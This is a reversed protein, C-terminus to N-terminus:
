LQYWKKSKYSQMLNHATSAYQKAENAMQETRDELENLKQGREIMAMKAKSVESTAGVGKAQLPVMNAGPIHKALGASAKGASEGFLEERDCPKPGGGFLGRLFSQKPAEPMPLNETFVHGTMEPLQRMFDASVSIKQLETPNSFYLGHGYNSFTMTRGVRPSKMSTFYMDLMPRLSPLSYAKIFGDSTYCVLCPTFKVGGFNIVSATVVSSSENITQCYMQRQSPLAYVAAAKETCFVVVQQDGMPPSNSEGGDEQQQGVSTAAGSGSHPRMPVMINEPTEGGRVTLTNASTDLFCATLLPGRIRFLTGSPSVVVPEEARPDGRDPLNIAVFIVSGLTTGVVLCANLHFDNKTTFADVFHVACVGEATVVLDLSNVSSSKSFSAAGSDEASSGAKQLRRCDPSKVRSIPASLPVNISDKTTLPVSLQPQVSNHHHHNSSTNNDQGGGGKESSSNGGPAPTLGPTQVQSYNSLDVRVIDDCPDSNLPRPSKPMRQFPDLSGYLDATGMNLLCVNQVIDVIVLGSNNGYAMLGYNSNLQLCNVPSPPENNVWPTLCVLEAHFGPTKRQSGVRLKFPNSYEYQVKDFNFCSDDTYASSQSAVQLLPRSPPFEFHQQQQVGATQSGSNSNGAPSTDSGGGSKSEPKHPMNSVEYVIPIEMSKTETQTEKRKFKFFIVQASAGAVALLRTDPCMTLQVIAYPDDEMGEAAGAPAGGKKNTREFFKSTKVKYLSQMTTSSADWFRVSGDAHGTIVLETYSCSETGNDLGGNIPWEGPSFLRNSGEKAKSGVMYLAPILDGPCDVLYRCCTVPSENFDMAYPNKFCPYGNSKCDIAVLDNNLMCIISEPEQYDSPYPSDAAVLFDLVCYEMELLTTTKGQMYTISPTVGTVDAPLGGSFVFYPEYSSRSVGWFVKEIPDCREMKGTERSKKGGGHPYVVSVPKNPTKPKVDWTVLSGDGCSCVFQRGEMHWAVSYVKYNYTYRQEGKKAQLDWLCLLGTEFGILIKSHDTPNISIHSIAGPHSKQMPDMLKNWSIQYGSLAFTEMNMLYVNGRETGIYLWKDQFELHIRTLRERGMKLTQELEPTKKRFDWLNISDDTCATLLKGTNVVFLIQMVQCPNEHTFEVDIGPKGYIRVAGTRNGIALIKQLPDFAMSLPKFPFGHRLTPEATFQDQVLNEIIDHELKVPGSANPGGGSGGVMGPPSPTNVSQRLNDIVGKINVFKKM